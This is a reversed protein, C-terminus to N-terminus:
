SLGCREHHWEPQPGRWGRFTPEVIIGAEARTRQHWERTIYVRGRVGRKPKLPDPAEVLSGRSQPSFLRGDVPLNLYITSQSTSQYITSQNVSAGYLRGPLSSTSKRLEGYDCGPSQKLSSHLCSKPSQGERWGHSVELEQEGAKARLWTRRFREFEAGRSQQGCGTNCPMGHAHQM